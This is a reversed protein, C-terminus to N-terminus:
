TPIVEEGLPPGQVMSIGSGHPWKGGVSASELVTGVHSRPHPLPPSAERSGVRSLFQPASEELLM